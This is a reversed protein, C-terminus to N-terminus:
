MAVITNSCECYGNICYVVGIIFIISIAIGFGELIKTGLSTGSDDEKGCCTSKGCCQAPCQGNVFSCNRPNEKLCCDAPCNDVNEHPDCVGNFCTDVSYGQKRKCEREFCARFLWCGVRITNYRAQCSNKRRTQGNCGGCFFSQSLKRPYSLKNKGCGSCYHATSSSEYTAGDCNQDAEFCNNCCVYELPKGDSGKALQFALCQGEPAQANIARKLRVEKNFKSVADVPAFRFHLCLIFGFCIQFFM